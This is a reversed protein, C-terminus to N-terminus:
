TITIFINDISLNYFDSILKKIDNINNNRFKELKIENENFSRVYIKNQRDILKLNINTIILNQYKGEQIKIDIEEIKYKCDIIKEIQFKINEKFIDELLNNKLLKYEEENYNNLTNIEKKYYDIKSINFNKFNNYISNIPEIMIFILIMGFILHIYSKYRTSPLIVQIFSTFIIFLIIERIYNYFHVMM